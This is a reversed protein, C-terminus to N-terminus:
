PAGKLAVHFVRRCMPLRSVESIAAEISAAEVRMASEFRVEWTYTKISSRIPAVTQVIGDPDATVRQPWTHPMSPIDTPAVVETPLRTPIGVPLDSIADAMKKAHYDMDADAQQHMRRTPVHQLKLVRYLVSDSLEYTAKISPVPEGSRYLDAIEREVETGLVHRKGRPM